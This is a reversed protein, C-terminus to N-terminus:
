TIPCCTPLKGTVQQIHQNFIRFLESHLRYSDRLTPLECTDKEFIANAIGTTLASTYLVQFEYEDWRWSNEKRALLARDKGEDAFVLYNESTMRLVIPAESCPHFSVTGFSGNSTRALITGAFECCEPSRRNAALEPYLYSGDLSIEDFSAGSVCGFLDLLHIANSGMGHNGGCADFILSKEGQLLPIILRYFPFYRRTCNVWAKVGEAEFIDLIEEYETQTQCVMKEIVFRKHGMKVLQKLVEPRGISHTAVITLDAKSGHLDKIDKFWAVSIDHQEPLVERLRQEGIEQNKDLPEVVKIDLKRKQKAVAQLHRSGMQGCGIVAIHKHM